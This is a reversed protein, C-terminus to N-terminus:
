GGHENELPMSTHISISSAMSKDPVDHTPVVEVVVVVVVIIVVVVVVIVVLLQRSAASAYVM